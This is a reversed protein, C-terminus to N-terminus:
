NCIFGTITRNCTVSPKNPTKNLNKLSQNLSDLAQQQRIKQMEQTQADSSEKIQTSLNEAIQLQMICNSHANTAQSFGFSDCQKSFNDIRIANRNQRLNEYNEAQKKNQLLNHSEYWRVIKNEEISIVFGIECGYYCRNLAEYEAEEITARCQQNPYKGSSGSGWVEPYKGHDLLYSRSVAVACFGKPWVKKPAGQSRELFHSNTITSCGSLLVVLLLFGIVKLKQFLM